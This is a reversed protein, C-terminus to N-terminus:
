DRPTERLCRRFRSTLDVVESRTGDALWRAREDVNFDPFWRKRMAKVRAMMRACFSPDQINHAARQAWTLAQEIDALRQPVWTGSEGFAMASGFSILALLVRNSTATSSFCSVVGGANGNISRCAHGPHSSGSVRRAGDGAACRDNFLIHASRRAYNRIANVADTTDAAM